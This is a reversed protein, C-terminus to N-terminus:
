GGAASCCRRQLWLDRLRISHRPSRICALEPAEKALKCALPPWGGCRGGSSVGSCGGHPAGVASSAASAHQAVVGQQAAWHPWLPLM